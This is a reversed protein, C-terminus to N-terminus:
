KKAPKRFIEPKLAPNIKLDLLRSEYAQEGADMRLASPVPIGEFTKHERVTGRQRATEHGVLLHSAKDVYLKEVDGDADKIELVDSKTGGLSGTTAALARKEDLARLVRLGPIIDHESAKRAMRADDESLEQVKDGFQMFAVKETLVAIQMQGGVTMEQRHSRPTQFYGVGNMEVKKDGFLLTMSHRSQLTKIARLKAEGGYAAVIKKALQVGAPDAHAPRAVLLLAAAALTRLPMARLSADAARALLTNAPVCM